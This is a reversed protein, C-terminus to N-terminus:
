LLAEVMVDLREHPPMAYALAEVRWLPIAYPVIMVHAGRPTASESLLADDLNVVIYMGYISATQM